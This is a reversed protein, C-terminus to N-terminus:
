SDEKLLRGLAAVARSTASKVTGTSIGMVRATEDQSLDLYFRLVLAERQRDPLARIAALVRQNEEGVLVTAEASEVIQPTVGHRTGRHRQRLANRCRNLVASRLYALAKGTDALGDWHRYLGLFADQVVDEAAVRDGLMVIALRILGVAHGQYLATVGATADLRGDPADGADPAM